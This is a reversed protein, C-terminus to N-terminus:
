AGAQFTQMEKGLAGAVQGPTGTARVADAIERLLRNQEADAAAQQTAQRQLEQAQALQLAAIQGGVAGVAATTAQGTAAAVYKAINEPRWASVQPQMKESEATLYKSIEPFTKTGSYPTGSKDSLSGGSQMRRGPLLGLAMLRRTEGAPIVVGGIILEPGAEGVLTPGKGLPGGHQRNDDYISSAYMNRKITTERITVAITVEKGNQALLHDVGAGSLGIYREVAAWDIGYDKAQAQAERLDIQKANLQVAIAAAAAEELGATVDVGAVAGQQLLTVFENVAAGGAERWAAMKEIDFIDGLPDPDLRGWAENMTDVAANSADAMELAHERATKLEESYDHLPSIGAETSAALLDAAEIQKHYVDILEQQTTAVVEGAENVFRFADDVKQLSVGLYESADALDLTKTIADASAAAWPALARGSAEKLRVSAAEASVGLRDFKDAASESQGGLRSTADELLATRKEADTLQKVTKGIRAAYEAFVADANATIGASALTRANLRTLAQTVDIMSQGTSKGLRDGLAESVLALQEFQEQTTVVGLNLAQTAVGIADMESITGGAGRQVARVVADMSLGYSAALDKGAAKLESIEAGQRSFEFAKKALVVAGVIAAWAAVTGQKLEGISDGMGKVSSKTTKELKQTEAIAQKADATWRIKADPM